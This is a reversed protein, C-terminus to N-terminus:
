YSILYYSGLSYILRASQMKRLVYNPLSVYLSNCCDIKSIVLSHVLVHLCKRDLYKKIAYVNRIQFSCSKFVM